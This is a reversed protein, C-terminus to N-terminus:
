GRFVGLKKEPDTHRSQDIADLEERIQAVAAEDYLRMAGARAFPGIHDRTRLIYQVRSLSEGLREALRGPTLLRPEEYESM